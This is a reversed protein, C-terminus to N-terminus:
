IFETYARGDQKRLNWTLVMTGNLNLDELYEKEKL